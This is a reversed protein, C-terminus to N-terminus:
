LAKRALALIRRLAGRTRDDLIGEMLDSPDSESVLFARMLDVDEGLRIKEEHNANLAKITELTHM